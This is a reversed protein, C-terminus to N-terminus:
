GPAHALAAISDPRSTRLAPELVLDEPMVLAAQGATAKLALDFKPKSLVRAKGGAAEVLGGDIWAKIVNLEADPLKPQKPPMKPDSLHAVVKWLTSDAADGPRAVEGGGGGAMASGYTSLDLDGKKKDANHCSNCRNNFIPLVHDQYTVKDQGLGHSAHVLVLVLVLSPPLGKAVGPSRHEGMM